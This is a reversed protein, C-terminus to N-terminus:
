KPTKNMSVSPLSVHFPFSQLDKVEVACPSIDVGFGSWEALGVQCIDSVHNAHISGLRRERSHRDFGLDLRIGVVVAPLVIAEDHSRGRGVGELPRAGDGANEEIATAHEQIARDAAVLQISQVAFVVGLAVDHELGVGVLEHGLHIDVGGVDHGIRVGRLHPLLDRRETLPRDTSRGALPEDVLVVDSAIGALVDDIRGPIENRFREDDGADLTGYEQATTLVVFHQVGDSQRMARLPAVQEHDAVDVLEIESERHRETCLDSEHRVLVCPDVLVVVEVVAGVSAAERELREALGALEKRM